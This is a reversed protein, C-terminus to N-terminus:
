EDWNWDEDDTIVEDGSKSEDPTKNEVFEEEDKPEDLIEKQKEDFKSEPTEKPSNSTTDKQGIFSFFRKTLVDNEKCDKDDIFEDLKMIQIYIKEMEKDTDAIAEQVGEFESSDYNAYGFVKKVTLHFRMGDWLDYVPVEKTLESKPNVKDAIKDFIKKGFKYLFVKGNNEPKAPDKIMFINAVFQKKRGYRGALDEEEKTGDWFPQVYDCIGCPKDWTAPCKEVFYKGKEKFFHQMYMVIPNKESDQQPVFRFLAEGNGADDKTPTWFRADNYDNKPTAMKKAQEIFKTKNKKFQNFDM